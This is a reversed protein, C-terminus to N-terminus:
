AKMCEDMGGEIERDRDRADRNKREERRGEGLGL